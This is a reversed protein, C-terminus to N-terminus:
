RRRAGTARGRWRMVGLVAALTLLMALAMWRLARLVTASYKGALDFHFCLLLLRQVPTAIRQAAAEDLARRLADPTFDFGFFYQAITGRPTLVVIGAPHAYQHSAADYVYRFGSAQTLAAISAPSGSLLHWANATHPRSATRLFSAKKLSAAAPSDGPDISAVIVQYGVGPALGGRDLTAALNGLVTPCLSSCGYYAFVLVVPSADFYKDLRVTAGTEDRFRLERPITDNLHQDFGVGEAISAGTRNVAAGGPISVWFSALLLVRVLMSM